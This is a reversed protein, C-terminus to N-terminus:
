EYNSINVVKGDEYIYSTLTQVDGIENVSNFSITNEYNFIFAHYEPGYKDFLVTVWCVDKPHLIIFPTHGLCSDIIQGHHILKGYLSVENSTLTIAEESNNRILLNLEYVNSKTEQFNTLGITFISKQTRRELEPQVTLYVMGWESLTTAIVLIISCLMLWTQKWFQKAVRFQSEPITKIVLRYFVSIAWIVVIPILFISASPM